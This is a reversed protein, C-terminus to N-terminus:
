TGLTQIKYQLRQVEVRGIEAPRYKETSRLANGAQHGSLV